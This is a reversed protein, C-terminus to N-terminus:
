IFKSPHTSGVILLSLNQSQRGLKSVGQAELETKILQLTTSKGARDSGEFVVFVGRRSSPAPAAVAGTRVQRLLYLHQQLRRKPYSRSAGQAPCIGVCRSTVRISQM